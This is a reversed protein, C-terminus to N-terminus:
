ATVSAGKSTWAVIDLLRVSSLVGPSGTAEDLAEFVAPQRRIDNGIAATIACMYDAWSRDNSPMVPGGADVYCANVWRDHLVVSQPRKRHLIKSLTTANVNSPKHLPDDLIDYLPKVMASIREPDDIEALPLNLDSNAL